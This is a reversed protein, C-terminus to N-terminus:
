TLQLPDRSNMRCSDQGYRSAMIGTAFGIRLLEETRNRRLLIDSEDQLVIIISLINL